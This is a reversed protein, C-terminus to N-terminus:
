INVIHFFISFKSTYFSASSAASKYVTGGVTIETILTITYETGAKLSDFTISSEESGTNKIVRYFLSCFM